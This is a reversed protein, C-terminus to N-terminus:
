LKLKFVNGGAAAWLSDGEMTLTVSGFREGADGLDKAVGIPRGTKPDLRQVFMAATKGDGKLKWGAIYVRNEDGAVDSVSFIESPHITM